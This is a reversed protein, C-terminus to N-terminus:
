DQKDSSRRGNSARREVMSTGYAAGEVTPLRDYMRRIRFFEKGAIPEFTAGNMVRWISRRETRHNADDIKHSMIFRSNHFFYETESTGCIFTMAEEEERVMEEKKHLIDTNM